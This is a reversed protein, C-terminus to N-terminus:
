PVDNRTLLQVVGNGLKRHVLAIERMEAIEPIPIQRVSRDSSLGQWSPIVAYGVGKAVVAVIAELADLHCLIHSAPVHQKLWKEAVRGGWSSTDYILAKGQAIIEDLSRIDNKQTIMVISQKELVICDLSKPIAHPPNVIFAADLTGELLQQYLAQSTGPLVTLKANPAHSAFRTLVAPVTDSLATSVSGLRIPASLGSPDLDAALGQVADAIMRLRPLIAQCALTPSVRQGKRTFLTIDLQNEIARIRQSVAAPTLNLQRACAAYSGTEVVRLVTTLFQADM